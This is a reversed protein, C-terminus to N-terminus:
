SNEKRNANAKEKRFKELEENTIKILPKMYEPAEESKSDQREPEKVKKPKPSEKLKVELFDERKSSTDDYLNKNVGILICLFGLLIM